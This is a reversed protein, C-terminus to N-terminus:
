RDSIEEQSRASLKERLHEDYRRRETEKALAQEPVSDERTEQIEEATSTSITDALHVAEQRQPATTEGAQKDINM